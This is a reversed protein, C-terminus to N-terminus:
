LKHITQGFSAMETASDPLPELPCLNGEDTLGVPAEMQECWKKDLSRPHIEMQMKEGLSVRAMSVLSENDGFVKDVLEIDLGGSLLRARNEPVHLLRVQAVGEKKYVDVIKFYSNYHLTCLDRETLAPKKEVLEEIM